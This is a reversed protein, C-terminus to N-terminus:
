RAGNGLHRPTSTVNECKCTSLYCTLNWINLKQLMNHTPRATSPPVPVVDFQSLLTSQIDPSNDAAQFSHLIM